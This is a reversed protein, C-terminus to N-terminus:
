KMHCTIRTYIYVLTVLRGPDATLDTDVSGATVHTLTRLAVGRGAHRALAPSIVHTPAAM